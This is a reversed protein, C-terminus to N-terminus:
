DRIIVLAGPNLYIGFVRPNYGLQYQYLIDTLVIPSLTLDGMVWRIYDNSLSASCQPKGWLNEGRLFFDCVEDLCLNLPIMQDCKAKM